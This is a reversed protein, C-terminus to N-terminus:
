PILKFDNLGKYMILSIIIKGAGIIGTIYYFMELLLAYEAYTTMGRSFFYMVVYTIAAVTLIELIIFAKAYKKIKKLNLM